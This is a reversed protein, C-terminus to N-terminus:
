VSERWVDGLNTLKEPTVYIATGVYIQIHEGNVTVTKWVTNM